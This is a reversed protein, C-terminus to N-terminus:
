LGGDATIIGDSSCRLKETKRGFLAKPVDSGYRVSDFGDADCVNSICLILLGLLVGVNRKKVTTMGRM